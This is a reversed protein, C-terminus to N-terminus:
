IKTIRSLYLTLSASHTLTYKLFMAGQTYSINHIYSYIAATTSYLSNNYETTHYICSCAKQRWIGVWFINQRNEQIIKNRNSIKWFRRYQVKHFYQYGLLYWGLDKDAVFMTSLYKKSYIDLCMCTYPRLNSLQM